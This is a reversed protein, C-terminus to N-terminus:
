NFEKFDEGYLKSDGQQKEEGIERVIGIGDIPPEATVHPEPRRRLRAIKVRSGTRCCHAIAGRNRKGDSRM